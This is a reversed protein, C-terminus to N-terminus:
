SDAFELSPTVSDPLAVLCTIMPVEPYGISDSVSVDTFRIFDLSDYEVTECTLPTQAIFAVRSSDAVTTHISVQGITVSLLLASCM